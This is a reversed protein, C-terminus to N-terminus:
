PEGGQSSWWSTQPKPHPRTRDWPFPALLPNLLHVALVDSRIAQPSPGAIDLHLGIPILLPGLVFFGVMLRM